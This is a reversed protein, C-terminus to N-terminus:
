QVDGEAPGDGGQGDTGQKARMENDYCADCLIADHDYRGDEIVSVYHADDHPVAKGCGTCTVMDEQSGAGAGAEPEAESAGSAQGAKQGKRQRLKSLKARVSDPVTQDREKAQADLSAQYLAPLQSESITRVLGEAQTLFDQKATATDVGELATALLLASTASKPSSGDDASVTINIEVKM